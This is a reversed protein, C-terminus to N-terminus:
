YLKTRKYVLNNENSAKCRSRNEGRQRHSQMNRWDTARTEIEPNRFEGDCIRDVLMKNNMHLMSIDDRICGYLISIYTTRNQDKPPRKRKAFQKM